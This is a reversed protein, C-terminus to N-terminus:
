KGGRELVKQAAKEGSFFAEDSWLYGWDGYRGCYAIGIDDLYAHVTRLAAARELDFIINAYPIVMAEQFIIKDDDRLIGCKKLGDIAPQICSEGSGTLPKYKNSFYVEAQISGCGAPVVHPSFTRPFSVRSFTFEDDYFYTWSSKSLHERNVGLNVLVVTTCALRSAAELVDKPAGKIMPVLDPLPVSSILGGYGMSKGNRLGLTKTKPDVAVVEQDLHIDSAGTLGNLFAAFGGHKPYRYDQVYHINPSNSSLAGQLVEGLKAQYLRPGVWETSLNSAHTTHYKSAYQMPFAEAYTRGYSAVLWDEYNEIKPNPNKGAEVYDAICKAIMDVPMGHMNTIVPHKIFQGQWYNDIYADISLYDNKVAEAFISKIKEEKTFSVHPGEDFLFGQREHTATHGGAYAKKDLVRSAKGEARLRSAAGLGAMGSGLIVYGDQM